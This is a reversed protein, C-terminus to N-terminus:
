KKVGVVYALWDRRYEGHEQPLYEDPDDLNEWLVVSESFGADKLAERVERLEWIRWDYTFANRVTKGKPLKFDIAYDCTHSIPDFQLQRWVCEFGSKGDVKFKRKETFSEKFGDGGSMELFLTGKVKLSRYAARFYQLLEDRTHFVYFSYNYAGIWDFKERTPKLVNQRLFSVRRRQEPSLAARNVAKAYKLTALDLDLGVARHLPSEKVWECSIRGTGCFDERMSVPKKGVLWQHFQPLYEVQWGPSQVSEEYLKYKTISRNKM